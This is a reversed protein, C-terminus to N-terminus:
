LFLFSVCNTLFVIVYSVTAIAFSVVSFSTLISKKMWWCAIMQFCFEGITMTFFLQKLIQDANEWYRPHHESIVFVSLRYYLCFLFSAVAFAIWQLIAVFVNSSDLLSFPSPIIQHLSSLFVFLTFQRLLQQRAYTQERSSVVKQVFYDNLCAKSFWLWLISSGIAPPYVFLVVGHFLLLQAIEQPTEFLLNPFM